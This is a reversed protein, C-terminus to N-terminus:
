LHGGTHVHGAGTDPDGVSVHFKSGILDTRAIDEYRCYM